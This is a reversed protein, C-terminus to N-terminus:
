GMRVPYVSYGVDALVVISPVRDNNKYHLREPIEDKLYVTM